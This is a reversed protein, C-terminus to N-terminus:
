SNVAWPEPHLNRLIGEDLWFRLGLLKARMALSRVTKPAREKRAVIGAIVLQQEDCDTKRYVKIEASQLGPLTRFLLERVTIADLLAQTSVNREVIGPPLEADWVDSARALWDCDAHEGRLQLRLLRLPARSLEGFRAQVRLRRVFDGVECLRRLLTGNESDYHTDRSGDREDSAAASAIAISAPPKTFNHKPVTTEAHSRDNRSKDRSGLNQTLSIERLFENRSHGAMGREEGTVFGQLAFQLHVLGVSVSLAVSV